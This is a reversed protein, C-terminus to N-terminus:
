CATNRLLGTFDLYEYPADFAIGEPGNIQKLDEPSEGRDIFFRLNKLNQSSPALCWKVLLRTDPEFSMIHVEALKFNIDRLRGAM